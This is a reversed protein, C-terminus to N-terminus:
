WSTMFPLMSSRISFMWFALDARPLPAKVESFRRSSAKALVVSRKFSSNWSLAARPPPILLESRTQSYTCRAHFGYQLLGTGEKYSTLYNRHKRVRKVACCCHNSVKIATTATFFLYYIDFSVWCFITESRSSCSLVKVYNAVAHNRPM